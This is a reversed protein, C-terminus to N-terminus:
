RTPDTDGPAQADFSTFLSVVIDTEISTEAALIAATSNAASEALSGPHSTCPETLLVHHGRWGGCVRWQWPTPFLERDFEVRTALGQTPHTVTCWGERLDAPYIFELTGADAGNLESLDRGEHVPWNVSAADGLSPAPAVVNMRSAPMHVRSGTGIAHAIHQNWMFTVPQAGLNTLKLHVTVSASAREVRIWKDVRCPLSVSYRSLHLTAASPTDEDLSWNWDGIWLDGHDHYSDGNYDCPPDTPFLEDWGGSWVDDFRAGAYTRRLPVRPNEWLVNFGTPRHVIQSIKGGAAPVV